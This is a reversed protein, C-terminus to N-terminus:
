HPDTLLWAGRDLAHAGSDAARIAVWIAVTPIDLFAAGTTVRHNNLVRAHVADAAIEHVGRIIVLFIVRDIVKFLCLLQARLAIRCRSHQSTIESPSIIDDDGVHKIM